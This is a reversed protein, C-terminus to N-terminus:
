MNMFHFMVYYVVNIVLTILFLVLLNKSPPNQIKSKSLYLYLVIGQQTLTWLIYVILGVIKLNFYVTACGSIFGAVNYVVDGVSGAWWSTYQLKGELDRRTHKVSIDKGRIFYGLLDEVLEWAIGWVLLFILVGRNFYNIWAGLYYIFFHSLSWFGISVDIGWLHLIYARNMIDYYKYADNGFRDVLCKYYVVVWASSLTALIILLINDWVFQLFSLLFSLMNYM